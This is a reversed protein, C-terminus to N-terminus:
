NTFDKEMKNLLKLAKNYTEEGFLSILKQKFYPQIEESSDEMHKIYFVVNYLSEMIEMQESSFFENEYNMVQQFGEFLFDVEEQTKKGESFISDKNSAHYYIPLGGFLRVGKAKSLATYTILNDDHYICFFSPIQAFVEELLEKKFWKNWLMVQLKQMTKITFFDKPKVNDAGDCFIFQHNQKKYIYPFAIIDESGYNVNQIWLLEDDIDVFWVYQNHCADLALRRGDLCGVNKDLVVDANIEETKSDRNDVIILEYDVKIRQEVYSKFQELYKINDDYVLVVISLNHNWEDYYPREIEYFIREVHGDTYRADYFGKPLSDNGFTKKYASQLQNLDDDSHCLNVLLEYSHEWKEKIPILKLLDKTIKIPESTFNLFSMFYNICHNLIDNKSIGLSTLLDIVENFGTTLKCFGEYSLYGTDSLGQNHIYILKNKTRVTKANKLALSLYFTDEMSVVKLLPNTVFSDIDIYLERKILKNWLSTCMEDQIFSWSLLNDRYLKDEYEKAGLGSKFGFVIIDENSQIDEDTLNYIDDDGDIFWIYDGKALEIIKRRSAFQYANYGFSFTANNGLKNGETNDIVILEYDVKVNKKIKDILHNYLYFDNDCFTIGISIM